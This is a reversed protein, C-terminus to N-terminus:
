QCYGVNPKYSNQLAEGQTTMGGPELKQFNPDNACYYFRNGPVAWVPVSAKTPDMKAPASMGLFPKARNIWEGSQPMVEFLAVIGTVVVLVTLGFKRRRRRAEAAFSERLHDSASSNKSDANSYPEAPSILSSDLSISRRSSLAAASKSLTITELVPESNETLSELSKHLPLVIKKPASIENQSVPLSPPALPDPTTRRNRHPSIPSLSLPVDNSISSRDNQTSREQSAVWQVIQEQTNKPLNKFSVGAVKQTPGLWKVRGIADIAETMGELRFRLNLEVQPHLKAVAQISIGGGSIDLLSGGNNPGLQVVVTSFPKLRHRVHGRREDSTNRNGSIVPSDV